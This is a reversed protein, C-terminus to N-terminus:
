LGIPTLPAPSPPVIGAIAQIMAATSSASVGKPACSRSCGREGCRIRSNSSLAHSDQQPLCQRSASALNISPSGESSWISTSGFGSRNCPPTDRLERIAPEQPRLPRPIGKKSKLLQGRATEAGRYVGQGVLWLTATLDWKEQPPAYGTDVEGANLCAKEM